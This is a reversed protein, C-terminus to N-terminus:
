KFMTASNMMNDDDDDDDDDDALQNGAKATFSAATRYTAKRNKEAPSPDNSWLGSGWSGHQRCTKQQCPLVHYRILWKSWALVFKRLRGNITLCTTGASTTHTCRNYYRSDHCIGNCQLTFITLNDASTIYLMCCPLPTWWFMPQLIQMSLMTIVYQTTM